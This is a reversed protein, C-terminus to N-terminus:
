LVHRPTKEELQMQKSLTWMAEKYLALKQLPHISRSRRPQKTVDNYNQHTFNHLLENFTWHLRQAWDTHKLHHPPICEVATNHTARKTLLVPAHASEATWELTTCHFAFDIQDYPHHNLCFRDLSSMSNTTRHTYNPQQVRRLSHPTTITEQFRRSETADQHGTFIMTDLNLRDDHSEAFNFDGTLITAHTQPRPIHATVAHTLEQRNYKQDSGSHYYCNIICLNGATPHQLSLKFARGEMIQTIASEQIPIFDQLFKNRILIAVGAQHTNGHSWFPTFHEPPTWAAAKDLTSHTEQLCVIDAHSCLKQLTHRKKEQQPIDYALLGQSNWTAIRYEGQYPITATIKTTSYHHWPPPPENTTRTQTPVHPPFPPPLYLPLQGDGQITTSLHITLIRAPSTSSDRTHSVPLLLPRWQIEGGQRKKTTTADYSDLHGSHAPHTSCRPQLCAPYHSM